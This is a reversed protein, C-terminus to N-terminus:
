GSLAQRAASKRRRMERRCDGVFLTSSGVGSQPTRMAAHGRRSHQRCRVTRCPGGQFSRLSHRLTQLPQAQHKDASTNDTEGTKLTTQGGIKAQPRCCRAAFGTQPCQKVCRTPAASRCLGCACGPPARVPAPRQQGGWDLRHIAMIIYRAESVEQRALM